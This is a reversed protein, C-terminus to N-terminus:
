DTDLLAPDLGVGDDDTLPNVNVIHVATKIFPLYNIKKEEVLNRHLLYTNRSDVKANHAESLKKVGVWDCSAHLNVPPKKLGRAKHDAEIGTVKLFERTLSMTDLWLNAPFERGMQEWLAHLFKRDFPANHAIICRHAPTLGDEAFFRECEEVVKPHDIGRELDSMTKKTITLADFNAREPYVCKIQRWLQVRDECRIIGIETMEHYNAKLGTTETDIVYYKIGSM